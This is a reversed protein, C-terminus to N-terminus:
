KNKQPLNNEILIGENKEILIDDTVIFDLDGDKDYDTPIVMVEALRYDAQETDVRRDAKEFNAIVEMNRYDGKKLNDFYNIPQDKTDTPWAVLLDLDGDKDMDCPVVPFFPDYYIPSKPLKEVLGMRKYRGDGLYRLDMIYPPRKSLSNENRNYLTFVLFDGVNKSSYPIIGFGFSPHVEKIVGADKIKGKNKFFKSYEGNSMLRLPEISNNKGCGCVLSASLLVSTIIKQYTKM